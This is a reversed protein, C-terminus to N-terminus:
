HIWPQGFMSWVIFSTSGATYVILQILVLSEIEYINTIQLICTRSDNSSKSRLSEVSFQNISNSVDRLFSISLM